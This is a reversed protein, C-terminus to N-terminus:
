VQSYATRQLFVSNIKSVNDKYKPDSSLKKWVPSDAFAKFHAKHAEKSEGSIMYVLSPLRSGVLSQAFFVPSLGVEQMLTIEGANFMEVKNVGKMESPSEYTRLEFVWPKKEPLSSPVALKKMGEFAVLLSNDMRVFAPDSKPVNLYESAAKQYEADAALRGPTAAFSELSEYPLLVYVKNAQPNDLETFVGIPKVGARNYAPIAADSWYDDILKKQRESEISYARLEYFEGKPAASEAARAPTSILSRLGSLGTIALASTIFTRKNM